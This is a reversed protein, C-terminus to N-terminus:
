FAEHRRNLQPRLRDIAIAESLRTDLPSNCKKVIDLDFDAITVGVDSHSRTAHETLASINNKSNLSKKHELYLMQFPRCTEGIYFNQCYKCTFKYVLFKDDCCITDPLSLCVECNDHKQCPPRKNFCHKLQKAPKSALKIEFDYKDIIKNIKRNCSDNIFDLQLM